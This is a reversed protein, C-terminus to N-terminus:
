FIIHNTSKVNKILYDTPIMWNTSVVEYNLNFEKVGRRM